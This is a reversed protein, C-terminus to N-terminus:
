ALFEIIEDVLEANGFWPWHGAGAVLRLQPRPLAAAYREAYRPPWWPDGEGWVILAPVDLLGLDAGAQEL